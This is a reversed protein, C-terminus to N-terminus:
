LQPVTIDNASRIYGFHAGQDVLPSTSRPSVIETLKETKSAAIFVKLLCSRRLSKLKALSQTTISSMSSGCKQVNQELTIEYRFEYEVTLINLSFWLM